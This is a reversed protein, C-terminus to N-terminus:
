SYNRIYRISCIKCLLFLINLRTNSKRLVGRPVFIAEIRAGSGVLLRVCHATLMITETVPRELLEIACM